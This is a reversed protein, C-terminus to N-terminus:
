WKSLDKAGSLMRVPMPLTGCDELLKQVDPHRDSGKWCFGPQSEQTSRSQSIDESSSQMCGHYKSISTVRASSAGRDGGQNLAM